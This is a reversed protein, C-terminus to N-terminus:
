LAHETQQGTVARSLWKGGTADTLDSITTGKFLLQLDARVPGWFNHMPCPNADGCEPLGMLCRNAFEDEETIDLVDSLRIKEPGRSLAVGGNPGKYSNLIGAGVLKQAVKALQYYPLRGEEAITKLSM